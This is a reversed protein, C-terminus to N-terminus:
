AREYITNFKSAYLDLSFVELARHEGANAYIARKKSNQILDILCSTLAESKSPEFLLGTEDDIVIEALGGHNAAVVPKKSLMAEVAVLGFPEPETSPVVVIDLGDYVSWIDDQFPVIRCVDGGVSSEISELLSDKLHEQATATSGIFVLKTDPHSLQVRKFAELLLEHGKWKNIRGVLGIYVSEGNNKEDPFNFIYNRVGRIEQDNSPARERSLGNWVVTTKEQLSQDYKLINKETAHSNVVITDAFYKLLKSYTYSVFKPKEIIEHVHWIHKIGQFKAYFAGILVALTNSHVIDVRVGKFVRRLKFYSKLIQYPLLLIKLSSFLSRSLKIVDCYVVNVGRGELEKVLPGEDSLVVTVNYSKSEVLRGVLYLLTKDSGYLESSQHFFVISKM